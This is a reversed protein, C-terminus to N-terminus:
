EINKSSLDSSIAISRGLEFARILCETHFLIDGRRDTGPCFLDKEYRFNITYFFNKVIFRANEFFDNRQSGAVCLFAGEKKQTFVPKNLINNSVWVNQFRDIMIKTQASISGFFIPSALILAHCEQIAQYILHIDDHIVSYGNSNVKEYEIEQCPSLDLDNLIMKKTKGGAARAGELAKEILIDTNGGIRPSGSIGLITNKEIKAFTKM